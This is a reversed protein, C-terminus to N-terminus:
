TGLTLRLEGIAIFTPSRTQDLVLGSAVLGDFGLLVPLSPISILATPTNPAAHTSTIVAGPTFLDVFLDCGYADSNFAGLPIAHATTMPPLGLWYFVDTATGASDLTDVVFTSGLRPFTVNQFDLGDDPRTARRAGLFDSFDDTSPTDWVLGDASVIPANFVDKFATPGEPDAPNSPLSSQSPFLGALAGAEDFSGFANTITEYLFEVSHDSKLRLQYTYHVYPWLDERFEDVDEWTISVSTPEAHYWISGTESNFAAYLPSIWPLSTLLDPSPQTQPLPISVGPPPAPFVRGFRAVVIESYLQGDPFRFPFPLVIPDSITDNNSDILVGSRYALDRTGGHTVAYGGTPTPDFRLAPGRTCGRRSKEVLATRNSGSVYFGGTGDPTFVLASAELDTPSGYVTPGTQLLAGALAPTWDTPGPDQGVGSNIGCDGGVNQDLRGYVITVVGTTDIQIQFTAREQGGGADIWNSVDWTAVFTNGLVNAYTTAQFGDGGPSAARIMPHELFARPDDPLGVVSATLFGDRHVYLNSASTGGPFPVSFPLPIDFRSQTAVAPILAEGFPLFGQAAVPSALALLAAAGLGRVLQQTNM